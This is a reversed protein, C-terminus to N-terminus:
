RTGEFGSFLKGSFDNRAQKWLVPGFRNRSKITIEGLFWVITIEAKPYILRYLNLSTSLLKTKRRRARLGEGENGDDGKNTNEGVLRVETRGAIQYFM